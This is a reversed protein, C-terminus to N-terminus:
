GNKEESEAKYRDIIELCEDIVFKRIPQGFRLDEIEARIKDLISEQELAKPIVTIDFTVVRDGHLVIEAAVPPKHEVPYEYEVICKFKM